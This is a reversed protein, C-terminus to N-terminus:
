PTLFKNFYYHKQFTTVMLGEGWKVGDKNNQDKWRTLMMVIAMDHLFRLSRM